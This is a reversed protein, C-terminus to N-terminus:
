SDGLLDFNIRSPIKKESLITNAYAAYRIRIQNVPQKNDIIKGMRKIEYLCDRYLKIEDKLKYIQFELQEIDKSKLEEIKSQLSKIKKRNFIDM